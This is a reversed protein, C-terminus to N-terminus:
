ILLSVAPLTAEWRQAYGFVNYRNNANGLDDFRVLFESPTEERWHLQGLQHPQIEPFLGAAYKAVETFLRTLNHGYAEGGPNNIPSRSNLLLSVKFYERSRSGRELFIM